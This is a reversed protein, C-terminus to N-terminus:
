SRRPWRSASTAAAWWWSGSRTGSSRADALLREADDLTQVGHIFPLDIGPLDPRLPRAGTGIHLLDFGLSITREHEHDRVEVKGADLDIAMAEHRM